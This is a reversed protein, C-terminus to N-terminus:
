LLGKLAPYLRERNYFNIQARLGTLDDLLGLVAVRPNVEVALTSTRRAEICIQRNDDLFVHPACPDLEACKWVKGDEGTREFVQAATIRMSSSASSTSPQCYTTSGIGSRLKRERLPVSTCGSLRLKWWCNKSVSLTQTTSSPCKRFAPCPMRSVTM